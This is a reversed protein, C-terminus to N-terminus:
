LEYVASEERPEGLVRRIVSLLEANDVPKQLYANAGAKLVRERSPHRDRASVVIVPIGALETTSEPRSSAPSEM